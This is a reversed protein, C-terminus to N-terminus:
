RLNRRGVLLRISAFVEEVRVAEATLCIAAEVGDYALVVDRPSDLVRRM